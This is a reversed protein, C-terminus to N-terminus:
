RTFCSCSDAPTHIKCGVRTQKVTNDAKEKGSHDTLGIKVAAFSQRLSRKPETSPTAECIYLFAHTRKFIGVTGTLALFLPLELIRRLTPPRPLHARTADSKLDIASSTGIGLTSSQTETSMNTDVGTKLSEPTTTSNSREKGPKHTITAPKPSKPQHKTQRHAINGSESERELHAPKARDVTVTEVKGKM